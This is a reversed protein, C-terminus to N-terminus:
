LDLEENRLNHKIRHHPVTDLLRQLPGSLKGANDRDAQLKVPKAGRHGGPM